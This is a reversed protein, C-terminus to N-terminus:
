KGTWSDLFFWGEIAPAAVTVHYPQEGAFESLSAHLFRRLEDADEPKAGVVIAVPKHNLLQIWRATTETLSSSGAWSIEVEGDVIDRLLERLLVAHQPRETIIAIGM